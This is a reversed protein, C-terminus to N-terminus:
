NLATRRESNSLCHERQSGTIEQEARRIGEGRKEPRTCHTFKGDAKTKRSADRFRLHGGINHKQLTEKRFTRCGSVFEMKGALHPFACCIKCTMKNDDKDFVVEQLSRLPLKNETM